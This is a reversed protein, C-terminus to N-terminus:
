VMQTKINLTCKKYVGYLQTKSKLEIQCDKDKSPKFWKYKIPNNIHKSKLRDGIQEEDVIQGM